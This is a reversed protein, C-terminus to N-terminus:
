SIFSFKPRYNNKGLKDINSLYIFMLNLFLPKGIILYIDAAIHM